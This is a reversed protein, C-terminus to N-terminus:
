SARDAQGARRDNRPYAQGQPSGSFGRDRLMEFLRTARLRPYQELTDLVLPKYPDLRSPGKPRGVPVFRDSEIAHRVTDHHVGLETAITGVKWHEAFFLRRIRARLEPSIM